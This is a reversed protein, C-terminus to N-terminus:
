AWFTFTNTPWDHPVRHGWPSHLEGPEETWPVRWALISSYTNMRKELLDKQSLSRVWTEEMAPLNKVKHAMLSARSLLRSNSVSLQGFPLAHLSQTSCCPGAYSWPGGLWTVRHELDLYGTPHFNIKWLSLFRIGIYCKLGKFKGPRNRQSFGKGFRALMKLLWHNLAIPLLICKFFRCNPFHKVHCVHFTSSNFKALLSIEAEPLAQSSSIFIAM